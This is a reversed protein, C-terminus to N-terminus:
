FYNARITIRHLVMKGSKDRYFNFHNNRQKGEKNEKVILEFMPFLAERWDNSDNYYINFDEQNIQGDDVYGGWNDVVCMLESKEKSNDRALKFVKEVKKKYKGLLENTGGIEYDGINENAIEVNVFIKTNLFEHWDNTKTKPLFQDKIFQKFYNELHLFNYYQGDVGLLSIYNSDKVLTETKQLSYMDLHVNPELMDNIIVEGSSNLLVTKGGIYVNHVDGANGVNKVEADILGYLMGNHVRSLSIYIAPIAVEGNDNLLGVLKSDKDRFRIYGESEFDPTGVDYYFVQSSEVKLDSGDEKVILYYTSVGEETDDMITRIRHSSTIYPSINVIRGSGYDIEQSFVSSSGLLFAGICIIYKYM